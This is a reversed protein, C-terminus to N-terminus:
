TCLFEEDCNGTGFCIFVSVCDVKETKFFQVGVDKAFLIGWASRLDEEKIQYGSYYQIYLNNLEERWGGAIEYLGFSSVPVSQEELCAKRKWSYFHLLM